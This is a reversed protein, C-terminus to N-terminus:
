RFGKALSDFLGAVVSGLAPYQSAVLSGLPLLGWSVTRTVFGWDFHVSGATTKGIASVVPDRDLDAYVVFGSLVIGAVWVFILSTILREPQIFYLSTMAVSLVSGVILPPMFLRFHRVYRPVFVALLTASFDDIAARTKADAGKRDKNAGGAAALLGDAVVGASSPDETEGGEGTKKGAEPSSAGDAGAACRLEKAMTTRCIEYDASYKPAIEALREFSRLAFTLDSMDGGSVALQATLTRSLSPPLGELARVCPHSALRRLLRRILIWTALLRSFNGTIPLFALIGFVALVAGSLGPELTQPPKIVLPVAVTAAFLLHVAVPIVTFTTWPTRIVRLLRREIEDIGSSDDADSDDEGLAQAIPPVIDAFLRRDPGSAQTSTAEGSPPPKPSTSMGFRHTDLFRLRVRWCWLGIGMTVLGVLVALVPSAGSLLNYTTERPPGFAMTLGVLGATAAAVSIIIASWNTEPPARLRVAEETDSIRTRAIEARAKSAALVRCRAQVWAAVVLFAAIVAVFPFLALVAGTWTSGLMLLPPCTAIVLMAATVLGDDARLDLHACRGIHAWLSGRHRLFGTTKLDSIWKRSNLKDAVWPSVIAGLVAAFLIWVFAYVFRWSLPRHMQSPDRPGGPVGTYPGVQWLGGHGILSIEARPADMGEGLIRRTALYISRVTENALAISPTRQAGDEAAHAVLMGDLVQAHSSDLYRIDSALTFLRVDPLVDRIRQALFLVDRPDTAVLGVFRTEERSLDGLVKALELGHVYPTEESLEAAHARFAPAGADGEGEAERLSTLDLPFEREAFCPSSPGCGGDTQAEVGEGYATVSESLVVANGPVGDHPGQAGRAELFGWMAALLDRDSPTTTAYTATTGADGLDELLTGVGPNTATGSVMSVHSPWAAEAGADLRDRLVAALSPATGSFTPGVIRLEPGADSDELAQHRVVFRIAAELQDKRVGVTPTEGVLLVLFAPHTRPDGAPRYLIVGPHRMWCRKAKRDDSGSWPLWFHDRVYSVAQVGGDVPMGRAVAEELGELASDFADSRETAIPDPVLGIIHHFRRATAAGADGADPASMPLRPYLDEYGKILRNAADALAPPCPDEQAGTGGDPATEGADGSTSKRADATASTQGAEGTSSKALALAALVVFVFGLAGAQGARM